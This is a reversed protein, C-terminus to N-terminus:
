TLNFNKHVENMTFMNSKTVNSTHGKWSGRDSTVHGWRLGCSGVGHLIDWDRRCIGLQGGALDGYGKDCSGM